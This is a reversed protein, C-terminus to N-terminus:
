FDEDGFLELENVEETESDGRANDEASEVGDSKQDDPLPIYGPAGAFMYGGHREREKATQERKWRIEAPEPRDLQEVLESNYPNDIVGHRGERDFHFKFGVLSPRGRGSGKKKYCREVYLHMREGLEEEIPGLVYKNIQGTKYSKPVDLLRCFDELSVSWFGKSRYQKARRYFEKAYSSKLETFEALEFRTFNATLENLLFSFKPNIAVKLTADELNTEFSSFLAFQIISRNGTFEFSLALLRRNVNLIQRTLEENTVNKKLRALKRLEDFTFVVEDSGKDRVKACISMLLDLDMATFRRLAQSNFQNSFKVIENPM